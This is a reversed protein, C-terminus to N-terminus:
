HLPKAPSSSSKRNPSRHVRAEEPVRFALSDHHHTKPSPLRTAPSPQAPSQLVWCSSLALEPDWGEPTIHSMVYSMCPTTHGNLIHDSRHSTQYTHHSKIPTGHAHPTVHMHCVTQDVLSRIPGCGLWGWCSGLAPSHGHESRRIKCSM